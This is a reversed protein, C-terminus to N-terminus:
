HAAGPAAPAGEPAALPAERDRWLDAEVREVPQDGLLLRCWAEASWLLLTMHFRSAGVDRRWSAADRGLLERLHGDLLFEPDAAGTLYRDVDFGFGLKPRRRGGSPCCRAASSACRRGQAGARDAAELPLNLALAM